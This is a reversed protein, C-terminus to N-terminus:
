AVPSGRRVTMGSGRWSWREEIRRSDNAIIAIPTASTARVSAAPPPPNATPSTSPTSNTAAPAARSYRCARWSRSEHVGARETRPRQEPEDVRHRDARHVEREADDRLSREPERRDDKQDGAHEEREGRHRVDLTRREVALATSRADERAVGEVLQHAEDGAPRDQEVVRYQERDGGERRGVVDGLEGSRDPAPRELHDDRDPDDREDRDHVHHAHAHALQAAAREDRDRVDGDLEQQD